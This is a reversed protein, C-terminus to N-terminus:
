EGHSSCLKPRTEINTRQETEKLLIIVCILNFLVRLMGCALVGVANDGAM